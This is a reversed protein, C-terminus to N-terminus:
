GPDLIDQARIDQAEGVSGGLQQKGLALCRAINRATGSVRAPTTNQDRAIFHTCAAIAADDRAADSAFGGVLKWGSVKTRYRDPLYRPREGIHFVQVNATFTKLYEMALTDVGRFDCVVFGDRKGFQLSEIVRVYSEVFDSFALNGNGFLYIKM